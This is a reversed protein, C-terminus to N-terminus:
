AASGTAKAITARLAALVIAEPALSSGDTIWGQRGLLREAKAAADLLDPSAAILTYDAELEACTAKHDSQMYGYGGDRDLISHVASNDPDPTVPRLTIGDWQWPGPTHPANM